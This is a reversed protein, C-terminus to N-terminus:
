EETNDQELSENYVRGRQLSEVFVDGGEKSQYLTSFNWAERATEFKGVKILNWDEERSNTAQVIYADYGKDQLESVAENADNLNEFAAVQM